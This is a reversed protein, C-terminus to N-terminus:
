PRHASRSRPAARRRLIEHYLDGGVSRAAGVLGAESGASLSLPLGEAAPAAFALVLASDDQGVSGLIALEAPDGGLRDLVTGVRSAPMLVRGPAPIAHASSVPFYRSGWIRYAEAPEVMRGRAGGLTRALESEAARADSAAYAGFILYEERARIARSMPPNVFGLHWLPPRRELLSSIARQLPEPREFAAAFPRDGKTERVALTARVIVGTRGMTGVALGLDDGELTRPRGDPLIMEASIVNERLWGYAFSGVGMGDRAIWGGVSARPASTPYVTLALHSSRLRDELELWLVGPEVEVRGRDGHPRDGDPLRVERMMETGVLVTQGAPKPLDPDTGAGVPTLNVSYRRVAEALAVLEEADAPIVTALPGEHRGHPKCRDGFLEELVRVLEKGSARTM